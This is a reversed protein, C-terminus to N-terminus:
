RCARADDKEEDECRKECYKTGGYVAAGGAVHLGRNSGPPGTILSLKAATSEGASSAV